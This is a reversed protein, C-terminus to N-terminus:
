IGSFLGHYWRPISKMPGMEGTELDPFLNMRVTDSWKVLNAYAQAKEVFSALPTTADKFCIQKTKNIGEVCGKVAIKRSTHLRQAANLNM